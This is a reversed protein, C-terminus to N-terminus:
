KNPNYAYTFSDMIIHTGNYYLRSIKAYGWAGTREGTGSLWVPQFMRVKYSDSDMFRLVEWMYDWNWPLRNWEVDEVDTFAVFAEIKHKKGKIEGPTTDNPYFYDEKKVGDGWDIDILKDNVWWEIWLYPESTKLYATHYTGGDWSTDETDSPFTVIRYKFEADSNNAVSTFLLATLTVATLISKQKTFM